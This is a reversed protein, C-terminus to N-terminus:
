TTCSADGAEAKVVGDKQTYLSSSSSRMFKRQGRMHNRGESGKSDLPWLFRGLRLRQHHLLQHVSRGGVAPFIESNRGRSFFEGPGGM